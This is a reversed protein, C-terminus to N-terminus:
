FGWRDDTLVRAWVLVVMDELSCGGRLGDVRTAWDQGTKSLRAWDQETKDLRWTERVQSHASAIDGILHRVVTDAVDLDHQLDQATVQEFWGRSSCSNDV